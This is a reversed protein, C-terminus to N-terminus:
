FLLSLDKGKIIEEVTNKIQFYTKPTIGQSIYASKNSSQCAQDEGYKQKIEDFLLKQGGSEVSV